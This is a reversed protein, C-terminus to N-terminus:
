AQRKATFRAGRKAGDRTRTGTVQDGSLTGQWVFKIDGNKNHQITTFSFSDGNLSGDQINISRPKRGNLNIVSGTLQTGQTKFDFAFVGPTQPAKKAAAAKRAVQPTLEGNWKGDLGAAAATFALTLLAIAALKM